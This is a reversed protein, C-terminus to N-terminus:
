IRIIKQYAKYEKDNQMAEEVAQRVVQAKHMRRNDSVWTLYKDIDPSIILIFKTDLLNKMDKISSKLNKSLDNNTYELYHLLKNTSSSGRIITPKKQFLSNNYIAIVPKKMNLASAILFSVGSSPKSIEAIVIDSKNINQIHSKYVAQYDNADDEDTKKTWDDILTYGLSNVLDYIEKYVINLQDSRTGLLFIKM